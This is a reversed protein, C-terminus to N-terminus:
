IQLDKLHRVNPDFIIKNSDISYKGPNLILDQNSNHKIKLRGFLVLNVIINSHTIKIYTSSSSPM